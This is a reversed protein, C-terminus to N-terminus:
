NRNKPSARPGPRHDTGTRAALGVPRAVGRARVHALRVHGPAPGAPRALATRTTAHINWEREVEDPACCGAVACNRSIARCCIMECFRPFAFFRRDPPPTRM